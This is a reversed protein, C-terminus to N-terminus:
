STRRKKLHHGLESFTAQEMAGSADKVTEAVIASDM